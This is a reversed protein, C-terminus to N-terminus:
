CFLGVVAVETSVLSVLSKNSQCEQSAAMSCVNSFTFMPLLICNCNTVQFVCAVTANGHFINAADDDYLIDSSPNYDPITNNNGDFANTAKNDHIVSTNSELITTPNDDRITTVNRNFTKIAADNHIVTINSDLTTVDSHRM